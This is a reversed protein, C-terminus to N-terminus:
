LPAVRTAAKRVRNMVALGEHEEAPGEVFIVVVGKSELLRLGHFLGRAVAAATQESDGLQHEEIRWRTAAGLAASPIEVHHRCSTRLVGVVAKGEAPGHDREHRELVAAAEAGMRAVVTREEEDDNLDGREFLVVEMRPSYHRYKMGPTVPAQEMSDDSFDKKFVRVDEFGPFKRILKSVNCTCMRGWDRFTM